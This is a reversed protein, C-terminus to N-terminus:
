IILRKMVPLLFRRLWRLRHWRRGQRLWAEDLCNQTSGDPHNIRILRGFIDTRKVREIRALNGDGLMLYEDGEKGVCRHIMYDGHWCYFYCAWLVPEEDGGYPEVEVLDRGGRIAPFMSQGGMYLTVTQGERLSEAVGALFDNGVVIKRM